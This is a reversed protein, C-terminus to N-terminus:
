AMCSGHPEQDTCKQANHDKREYKSFILYYAAFYRQFHEKNEM